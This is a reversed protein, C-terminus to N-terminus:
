REQFNVDEQRLGFVSQMEDDSLQRRAYEGEKIDFGAPM